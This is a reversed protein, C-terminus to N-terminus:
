GSGGVTENLPWRAAPLGLEHERQAIANILGPAFDPEEGNWVYMWYDALDALSVSRPDKPRPRGMSNRPPAAPWFPHRVPLRHSMLALDSAGNTRLLRDAQEEPSV